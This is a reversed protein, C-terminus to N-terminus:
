NDRPYFLIKDGADVTLLYTDALTTHHQALVRELWAGDKGALKLNDPIVRGSPLVRRYIDSTTAASTPLTASSDPIVSGCIRM